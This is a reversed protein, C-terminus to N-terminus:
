CTYRNVHPDFMSHMYYIAYFIIVLKNGLPLVRSTLSGDQLGTFETDIALFAATVLESDLEELVSQFDSASLVSPVIFLIRFIFEYDEIKSHKTVDM